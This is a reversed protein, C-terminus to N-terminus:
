CCIIPRSLAIDHMRTRQLLKEKRRFLETLTTECIFFDRDCEFLVLGSLPIM